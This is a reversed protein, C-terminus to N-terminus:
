DNEKETAVEIDKIAELELEEKKFEAWEQKHTAECEVSCFKEFDDADSGVYQKKCSHCKM